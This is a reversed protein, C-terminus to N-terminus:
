WKEPVAFGGFPLALKALLDGNAFVIGVMKSLIAEEIFITFLNLESSYRVFFLSGCFKSIIESRHFQDPLNFM